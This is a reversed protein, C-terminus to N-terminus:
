ARVALVAGMDHLSVLATIFRLRGPGSAFPL